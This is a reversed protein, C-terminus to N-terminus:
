DHTNELAARAIKMRRQFEAAVYAAGQTVTCPPSIYDAGCALLAARLREIETALDILLRQAVWPQTQIDEQNLAYAKEVLDDSM